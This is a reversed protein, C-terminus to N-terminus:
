VFTERKLWRDGVARNAAEIAEQKNLGSAGNGTIWGANLSVWNREVCLQVAEAPSLGAKGAERLLGDVATQTLTTARKGKRV